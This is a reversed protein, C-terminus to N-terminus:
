LNAADRVAGPTVGARRRFASIFHSPSDFGTAEGVDDVRAGPQMLLNLARELRLDLIRAHPTTGETQRYARIFHFVSLGAADALEEVTPSGEMMVRLEARVAPPLCERTKPLASPRALGAVVRELAESSARALGVLAQAGAAQLRAVSVHADSLLKRNLLIQVTDAHGSITVRSQPAVVGVSGARITREVRAAPGQIEVRQGESVNFVYQVVDARASELRAGEHRWRGVAALVESGDRLQWLSQPAGLIESLQDLLIM